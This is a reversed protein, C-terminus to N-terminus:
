SAPAEAKEDQGAGREWGLIKMLDEVTEGATAPDYERAARPDRKEPIDGKERYYKITERFGLIIGPTPYLASVGIAKYLKHWCEFTFTILLVAEVPGMIDYFKNLQGAEKGTLGGSVDATLERQKAYLARIDAKTYDHIEKIVPERPSKVRKAKKGQRKVRAATARNKGRQLAQALSQAKGDAHARLPTESHEEDKNTKILSKDKIDQIIIDRVQSPVYEKDQSPIREMIESPIFAPLKHDILGTEQTLGLGRRTTSIIGMERLKRYARDITPVSLGLRDALTKHGVICKSKKGYCYTTLAVYVQCTTPDLSFIVDPHVKAFRKLTRENDKKADKKQKKM